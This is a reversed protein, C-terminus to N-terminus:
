LCIKEDKSIESSVLNSKSLLIRSKLFIQKSEKFISKQKNKTKVQFYFNIFKKGFRNGLNGKKIICFM